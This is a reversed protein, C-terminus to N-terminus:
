GIGGVVEAVQQSAGVPPIVGDSSDMEKRSGQRNPRGECGSPQLGLQLIKGSSCKLWM